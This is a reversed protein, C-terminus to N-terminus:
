SRFAAETVASDETGRYYEIKPGRFRFYQHLNMAVPKGTGRARGRFRVM